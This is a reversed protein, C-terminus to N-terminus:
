PRQFAGYGVDGSVCLRDFSIGGAEAELYGGSADPCFLERGWADGGDSLICQGAIQCSLLFIGNRGRFCM